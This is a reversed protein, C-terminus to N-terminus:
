HPLVEGVSRTETETQGYKARKAAAFEPDYTGYNNPWETEIKPWEKRMCCFKSKVPINIKEMRDIQKNYAEVERTAGCLCALNRATGRRPQTRIYPDM